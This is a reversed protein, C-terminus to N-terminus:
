DVFLVVEVNLLTVIVALLDPGRHMIVKYTKYWFRVRFYMSYKDRIVFAYCDARM